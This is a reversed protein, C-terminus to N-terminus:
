AAGDGFRNPGGDLGFLERTVDTYTRAREPDRTQRLRRTPEHLLKTVLSQSFAELEAALDPPLHGVRRLLREIERRRITEGRAHMQTLLPRLVRGQRWTEFNRVEENVIREVAPIEQRRLDLNGRLRQQLADLDFVQVGPLRAVEPEVDRPVAIDVFWRRRGDGGPGIAREVLERTVVAHPAGTSCLIADAARVAAALDHWGLATAGGGWERAVEEAHAATRSVVTLQTVGGARLAQGALRGMKGTGVVLVALREATGAVETLLRVAESSVSVPRRGIGTEIRARRGARTAARFAAELVPGAAGEGAATQFAATVQGLVESEGVVMSDLGAAVRCLHHVAALGANDYVHPRLAPLPLDAIAALLHLLPASLDGPRGDTDDPAAYLETRNCTSLIVLERVGATAGLARIAPARLMERQAEPGLALRERLAVPATRHNIGTCALPM